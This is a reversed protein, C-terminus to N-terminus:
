VTFKFQQLQGRQLGPFMATVADNKRRSGLGASLYRLKPHDIFCQFAAPQLHGMDWAAFEELAPAAAFSRLDTIGKMTEIRIRRLSRLDDLAPISTVRRLAQLFISQLSTTAAIPSLDDLGKVMWLELYTLSRLDPLLGLNKTGGLKVDLSRMKELGVFLSLDPLTISRLTVDELEGLQAIVKIDKHHGEIYLRNLTPFRGLIALSVTKKTAGLGIYKADSPLYALGDWNDLSWCDAQFSRVLPFHRLFELDRFSSHGYARLTIAPYEAVLRSLEVYEHNSLPVDFQVVECKPDLPELM